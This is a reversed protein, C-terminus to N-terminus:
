DQGIEKNNLKLPGTGTFKFTDGWQEFYAYGDYERFIAGINIPQPLPPPALSTEGHWSKMDPTLRVEHPDGNDMMEQCVEIFGIPTDHRYLIIM